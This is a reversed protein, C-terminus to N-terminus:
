QINIKSLFVHNMPPVKKISGELLCPTCFMLIMHRGLSERLPHCYRAWWWHMCLWHWVERWKEEVQSCPPRLNTIWLSCTPPGVRSSRRLHQVEGPPHGLGEPLLTGTSCIGRQDGGSCIYKHYLWGFVMSLFDSRILKGWAWELRKWCQRSLHCQDLGWLQQNVAQWEMVWLGSCSFLLQISRHLLMAIVWLGVCIADDLDCWSVCWELVGPSHLLTTNKSQKRAPWWWLLPVTVSAQVIVDFNYNLCKQFSHLALLQVVLKEDYLLHAGSAGGATVVGGKKFVPPLKALQELTTKPKPHEDLKM